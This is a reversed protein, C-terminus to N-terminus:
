CEMCRIWYRGDYTGTCKWVGPAIEVPLTFSWHYHLAGLHRECPKQNPCLDCADAATLAKQTAQKASEAAASPTAGFGDASAKGQKKVPVGDCAQAAAGGDDSYAPASTAVLALLLVLISLALSWPKM